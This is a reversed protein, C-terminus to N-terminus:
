RTESELEKAKWDWSRIFRRLHEYTEDYRNLPIEKVLQLLKSDAKMEYKRIQNELYYIKDIEDYNLDSKFTFLNEYEKLKRNYKRHVLYQKQAHIVSAHTMTKGNENFFYAIHTWRMNLKQRLLYCLLMRLEVVKQKRTNEFVDIDTFEKLKQAIQIPKLNKM